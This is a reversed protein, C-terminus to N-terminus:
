PGASAELDKPLGGPRSDLRGENRRQIPYTDGRFLGGFVGAGFAEDAFANSM